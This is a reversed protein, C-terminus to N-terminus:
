PQLSTHTIQYAFETMQPCEKLPDWQKERVAMNVFIETDFYTVIDYVSGPKLGGENFYLVHYMSFLYNFGSKGRMKFFFAWVAKEGCSDVAADSAYMSMSDMMAQMRGWMGTPELFQSKNTYDAAACATKTPGSGPIYWTVNDTILDMFPATNGIAFENMAGSLTKMSEPCTPCSTCAKWTKIPLTRNYVHPVPINVYQDKPMLPLCRFRDVNYQEITMMVSEETDLMGMFKDINFPLEPPKAPTSLAMNWLYRQRYAQGGVTSKKDPDPYTTCNKCYLRAHFKLGTSDVILDEILPNFTTLYAIRPFDAYCNNESETKNVNTHSFCGQSTAGFGIPTNQYAAPQFVGLYENGTSAMPELAKYFSEMVTPCSPCSTNAGFPGNSLAGPWDALLKNALLPGLGLGDDPVPFGWSPPCKYLPNEGLAAGDPVPNSLEGNVTTPIAGPPPNGPDMYATTNIEKTNIEPATQTQPQRSVHQLASISDTDNEGESVCTSGAGCSEEVAVVGLAWTLAWLLPAALTVKPCSTM